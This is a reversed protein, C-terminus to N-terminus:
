DPPKTLFAPIWRDQQWSFRWTDMVPYRWWVTSPLTAFTRLKFWEPSQSRPGLRLVSWFLPLFKWPSRRQSGVTNPPSFAPIGVNWASLAKFHPAERARAGGRRMTEAYNRCQKRLTEASNKKWRRRTRKCHGELVWVSSFCASKTPKPGKKGFKGFKGNKETKENKKRKKRKRPPRTESSVTGWCLTHKGVGRERGFKFGSVWFPWVCLLFHMWALSNNSNAGGLARWWHRLVHTTHWCLPWLVCRGFSPPASLLVAHLVPMSPWLFTKIQYACVFWISRAPTHCTNACAAFLPVRDKLSTVLEVVLSFKSKLLFILFIWVYQNTM